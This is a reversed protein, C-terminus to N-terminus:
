FPFVVGITATGNSGSRAYGLRLKPRIGERSLDFGASYVAPGSERLNFSVGVSPSITVKDGLSIDLGAEIGASTYWDTDHGITATAALKGSVGEGLGFVPGTSFYVEAGHASGLYGRAGTEAHFSESDAWDHSTELVLGGEWAPHSAQKAAHEHAPICSAPIVGDVDMCASAAAPTSTALCVAVIAAAAWLNHVLRM